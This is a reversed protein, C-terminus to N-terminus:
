NVRNNIIGNILIEGLLIYGFVSEYYHICFYTLSMHPPLVQNRLETWGDLAMFHRVQEGFMRGAIKREIFM